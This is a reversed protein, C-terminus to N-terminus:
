CWQAQRSQQELSSRQNHRLFDALAKRSCSRLLNYISSRENCEDNADHNTHQRKRPNSWLLHTRRRRRSKDDSSVNPHKKSGKIKALSKLLYSFKLVIALIRLVKRFGFKNPDLLYSSFFYREKVEEPLTSRLRSAFNCTTSVV